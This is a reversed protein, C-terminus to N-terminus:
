VLLTLDLDLLLFLSPARFGELFGKLRSLTVGAFGFDFDFFSFRGPFSRTRFCFGQGTFPQKTMYILNGM